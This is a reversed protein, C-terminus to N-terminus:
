LIPCRLQVCLETTRTKAVRRIPQKSADNTRINKSSVIVTFAANLPVSLTHINNNNNNNNNNDNNNSSM